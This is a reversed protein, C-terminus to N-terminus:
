RTPPTRPSTSGAVTPPIRSRAARPRGTSCTLRFTARLQGPVYRLFRDLGGMYDERMAILAWRDQNVLAKGLQLFFDKQGSFDNPDLTLIEEFRDLILLQQEPPQPETALLDLTESISYARTRDLDPVHALLSTVVSAVYRNDSMAAEPPPTSVRALSFPERQACIQFGRREMTPAVAAQVLSTKGAGSPSHLVVIRSSILTDILSTAERERGYFL